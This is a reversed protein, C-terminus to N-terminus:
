NEDKMLWEKWEEDSYPAREMRYRNALDYTALMDCAKDLAKDLEKIRLYMEDAKEVLLKHGELLHELESCYKELDEVYKPKYHISNATDFIFEQKPRNM